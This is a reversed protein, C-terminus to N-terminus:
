PSRRPIGDWPGSDRGCRRPLVPSWCSSSSPPVPCPGLRARAAPPRPADARVEEGVSTSWPFPM